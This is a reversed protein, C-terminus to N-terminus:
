QGAYNKGSDVPDIVGYRSLQDEELEKVAL